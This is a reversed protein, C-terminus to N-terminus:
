LIRKDHGHSMTPDLIIHSAPQSIIRSNQISGIAMLATHTRLASLLGGALAQVANSHLPDWIEYCSM